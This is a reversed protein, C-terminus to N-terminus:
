RWYKHNLAHLEHLKDLEVIRGQTVRINNTQAVFRMTEAFMWKSQIQPHQLNSTLTVQCKRREACLTRQPCAPNQQLKNLHEHKGGLPPHLAAYFFQHDEFWNGIHLRLLLYCYFYLCYCHYSTKPIASIITLIMRMRMSTMMM